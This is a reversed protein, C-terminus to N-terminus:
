IFWFDRKVMIANLNTNAYEFYGKSILFDILESRREGAGIPSYEAAEVCIIKPTSISFNMSKLIELDMGEADLSLFDPFEGNCYQDIIQNITTIPIKKIELLEYKGTEIYRKCEDKSFSSITPDNMIYFNQHQEKNGIGISLNIDEPRINLFRQILYPNAEINIGRSGQEYFIATNSLFYPDNAGIDIYSPKRIGRLNFIYQIILDEGCQSYSKYNQPINPSSFLRCKIKHITKLNKINVKLKISFLKEFINTKNKIRHHNLLQNYPSNNLPNTSYYNIQNQYSQSTCNFENIIRYEIMKYHNGYQTPMRYLSIKYKQALLSLISQDWRHENYNPFNGKGCINPLDTLINKNKGYKLWENVFKISFETKKFLSFAADCHFGNWYQESDCDMMVFCDRKTWQVNTYNCNRFLLVDEIDRCISILPDLPNIIEIGCDSYIVIDGYNVKKFTELIIFPKWLWYGIGKPKDLIEKNEKYFISKKIKRFDYSNIRNIGFKIASDNLRQRSKKYLKNSLNTLVIEM